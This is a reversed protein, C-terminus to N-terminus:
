GSPFDRNRGEIEKGSYSSSIAKEVVVSEALAEGRSGMWFVGCVALEVENRSCKGASTGLERSSKVCLTAHCGLRTGSSGGCGAVTLLAADPSSPVGSFTLRSERSLHSSKEAKETNEREGVFSVGKLPSLKVGGKNRCACIGVVGRGM